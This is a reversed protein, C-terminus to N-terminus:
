NTTVARITGKGAYLDVRAFAENNLLRNASYKAACIWITCNVQHGLAKNVEAQM